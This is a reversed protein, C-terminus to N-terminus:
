TTSWRVQTLGYSNQPLICDVHGSANAPVSFSGLSTTTGVATAAGLKLEVDKSDRVVYRCTPAPLTPICPNTGCMGGAFTSSARFVTTGSWSLTMPVLWSRNGSCATNRVASSFSAKTFCTAEGALWAAGALGPVTDAKAQSALGATLAMAGVINLITRKMM